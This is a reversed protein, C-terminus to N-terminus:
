VGNRPWEAAAGNVGYSGHPKQVALRREAAVRGRGWQRRSTSPIESRCHTREAAVRGRGWQRRARQRLWVVLRMGNRPWEAAAGNVRSWSPRLRRSSRGNRPWEAAAGNVCVEARGPGRRSYANRPWEAAAGNVRIPIQLSQSPLCREAAVRGRGWQRPTTNVSLPRLLHTGRGSPRPGMSAWGAHKASDCTYANRPWEAAAGNVSARGAARTEAMAREAAM